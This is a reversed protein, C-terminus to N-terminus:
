IVRACDGYGCVLVTTDTSIRSALEPQVKLYKTRIFSAAKTALIEEVLAICYGRFGVGSFRAGLVGLTRLLVLAIRYGRFGVGSFRAGLVGLTRLLIEYLQILLEFGQYVCLKVYDDINLM